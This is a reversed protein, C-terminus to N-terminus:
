CCGGFFVPRYNELALWGKKKIYIKFISSTHRSLVLSHSLFSLTHGGITTPPRCHQLQQLQSTLSCLCSRPLFEPSRSFLSCSLLLSFELTRSLLPRLSDSSSGCSSQHSHRLLCFSDGFNISFSVNM